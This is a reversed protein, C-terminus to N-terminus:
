VNNCFIFFMIVVIISATAVRVAVAWISSAFCGRLMWALIEVPELAMLLAGGVDLVVVICWFPRAYKPL